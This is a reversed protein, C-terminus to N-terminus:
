GTLGTDESDVIVTGVNDTILTGDPVCGVSASSLRRNEILQIKESVLITVGISDDNESKSVSPYERDEVFYEVDNIYFHDAKNWLFAFRHMFPKGDFGLEETLRGRGYYVSSRGFSNDYALSEDIPQGFTLSAPIRMLPRFGTGEFGFGFANSDNCMALALTSCNFSESVKITNSIYTPEPDVAAISFDTVSFSSAGSATASLVLNDGAADITDTYTGDIGRVTGGNLGLFVQFQEGVSMGSLTYTVEYTQNTCVVHYLQALADVSSSFDASGSAITWGSELDWVFNSTKFDLADIGRKACDCPDVVELTYCGDPIALAEWDISCTFYGNSFDFYGDAKELSDVVVDNEDVINVLFNDNVTILQVNTLTAVSSANGFFGLLTSFSDAELWFEYSGSETITIIDSTWGVEIEGQGIVIDFTLRALTGESAPAEQYFVGGLGQVKRAEGDEILWFNSNREWFSGVMGPTLLFNGNQILDFDSGCPNLKMQFQTIDGHEALVKMGSDELWCNEYQDFVIPQNPITNAM